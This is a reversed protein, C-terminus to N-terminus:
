SAAGIVRNQIAPLKPDDPKTPDKKDDHSMRENERRPTHLSQDQLLQNRWSESILPITESHLCQGNARRVGGSLLRTKM